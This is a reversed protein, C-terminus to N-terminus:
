EKTRGEHHIFMLKAVDAVDVNLAWFSNPKMCIDVVPILFCPSMLLHSLSRSSKVVVVGM